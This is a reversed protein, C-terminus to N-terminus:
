LPLIFSQIFTTANFPCEGDFQQLWLEWISTKAPPQLSNPGVQALLQTAEEDSLGNKLHDSNNTTQTLKDIVNQLPLIEYPIDPSYSSKEAPAVNLLHKPSVSLSRPKVSRLWLSDGNNRLPSSSSPVRFSTAVESILLPM